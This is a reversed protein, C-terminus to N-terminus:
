AFNDCCVINDAVASVQPVPSAARPVAETMRRAQFFARLIAVAMLEHNADATDDLM